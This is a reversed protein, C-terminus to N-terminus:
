PKQEQPHSAQFCLGDATAHDFGADPIPRAIAARLEALCQQETEYPGGVALGRMFLLFWWKM